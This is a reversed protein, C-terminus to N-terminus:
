VEDSMVKYGVWLMYTLGLFGLVAGAVLYDGYQLLFQGALSDPTFSSFGGTIGSSLGKAWDLAGGFGGLSDPTLAM